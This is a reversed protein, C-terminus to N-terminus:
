GDRELGRFTEGVLLRSGRFDAGLPQAVDGMTLGRVIQRTVEELHDRTTFWLHSEPWPYFTLAELRLEPSRLGHVITSPLLAAFRLLPLVISSVIFLSPARRRTRSGPQWAPPQFRTVYLEWIRGDPATVVRAPRFFSV